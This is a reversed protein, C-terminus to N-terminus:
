PAATYEATLIKVIDNVAIELQPFILEEGSLDVDGTLIINEDRDIAEFEAASGSAAALSDSWPLTLGPAVGSVATGFAPNAMLVTALLSIGGTTYIRIRGEANASGVDFLAVLADAIANRSTIAHQLECPLPVFRRRSRRSLPVCLSISSKIQGGPTCIVGGFSLQGLSAQM